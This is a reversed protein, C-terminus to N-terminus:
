RSRAGSCDAGSGHRGCDRTRWRATENQRVAGACMVLRAYSWWSVRAERDARPRVAPFKDRRVSRDATQQAPRAAVVDREIAAVACAHSYCGDDGDLSQRRCRMGRSSGRPSPPHGSQNRPAARTFARQRSMTSKTSILRTPVRDACLRHRSLWRLAINWKRIARIRKRLIM